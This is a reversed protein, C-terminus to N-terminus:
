FQGLSTTTYPSTVVEVRGPHRLSQVIGLQGQNGYTMDMKGDDGVRYGFSMSPGSSSSSSSARGGKGQPLFVMSHFSTSLLAVTGAVVPAMEPQGIHKMAFYSGASLAVHAGVKATTTVGILVVCAIIVIQRLMGMDHMQVVGRASRSVGAILSNSLDSDDTSGLADSGGRM